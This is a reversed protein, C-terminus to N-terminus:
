CCHPLGGSTFALSLLKLRVFSRKEQEEYVINLADILAKVGANASWIALALGFLSTAGLAAGGQDLARAIQDQVIQFSGEPLMLALTQLNGGITSPSAFLGYCSVLATIAPFVALHAAAPTWVKLGNIPGPEASCRSPRQV